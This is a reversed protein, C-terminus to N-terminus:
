YHLRVIAFIIPYDLFTTILAPAHSLGRMDKSLGTPQRQLLLIQGHESTFNPLRKYVM